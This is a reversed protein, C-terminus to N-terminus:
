GMAEVNASCHEVLQAIFVWVNPAPWNTANVKVRSLFSVYFYFFSSSTFQPFVCKYNPTYCMVNVEASATM